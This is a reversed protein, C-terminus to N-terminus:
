VHMFSKALHEKIADSDKTCGMGDTKLGEIENSHISTDQFV